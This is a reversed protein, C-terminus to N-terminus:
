KKTACFAEIAFTSGFVKVEALGLQRSMGPLSIRIGSASTVQQPEWRYLKQESYFETTAEINPSAGRATYLSVRMPRASDIDNVKVCSGCACSEAKAKAVLIKWARRVQYPKVCYVNPIEDALLDECSNHPSFLEVYEVKYENDFVIDVFPSTQQKTICVALPDQVLLDGELNFLPAQQDHSNFHGGYRSLRQHAGM